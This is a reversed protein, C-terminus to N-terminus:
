AICREFNKLGVFVSHYGGFLMIRHFSMWVAYGLPYIVVLVLFVVVPVGMALAFQTDSLDRGSRSFARVREAPRFPSSRESAM